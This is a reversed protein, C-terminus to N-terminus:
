FIIKCNENFLHLKVNASASSFIQVYSPHLLTLVSFIADHPAAYTTNEDSIIFISMDLIILHDPCTAHMSLHYISATNTTFVTRFLDSSIDFGLYFSLILIFRRSPSPLTQAPDM